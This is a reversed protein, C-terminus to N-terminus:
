VAMQIFLDEMKKRYAKIANLSRNFGEQKKEPWKRVMAMQPPCVYWTCIWPRSLRGLTCGDPGLYCCIDQKKDMLQREPVPQGTLHIFILDKFDFWVFARACCSDTCDPCTAKCLKDLDCFLSALTQKLQGVLLDLEPNSGAYHRALHSIGANAAKWDSVKGWPPSEIHTPM